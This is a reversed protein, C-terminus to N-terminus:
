DDNEEEETSPETSLDDLRQRFQEPSPPAKRYVIRDIGAVEMRKLAEGSKSGREYSWSFDAVMGYEVRWQGFEINFASVIAHLRAIALEEEKTNPIM